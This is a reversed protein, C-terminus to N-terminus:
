RNDQPLAVVEVEDALIGRPVQLTEPLENSDIVLRTSKNDEAGQGLNERAMAGEKYKFGITFEGRSFLL